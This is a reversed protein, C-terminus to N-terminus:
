RCVLLLKTQQNHTYTSVHYNITIMNLAMSITVKEAPQASRSKCSLQNHDYKPWVSLFQRRQNHIRPSVLYNITIMYLAVSITM